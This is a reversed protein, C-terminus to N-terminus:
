NFQRCMDFCVSRQQKCNEHLDQIQGKLQGRMDKSMSKDYSVQNIMDKGMRDTQKVMGKCMNFNDKCMSKCENAFSVNLVLLLSLGAFYKM